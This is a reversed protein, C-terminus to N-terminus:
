PSLKNNIGHDLNEYKRIKFFTIEFSKQILMVTIIFIIKASFIHFRYLWKSTSWQHLQTLLYWKM